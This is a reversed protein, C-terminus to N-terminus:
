FSKSLNFFFTRGLYDYGSYLPANGIRNGWGASIMPPEKDALNRAGVTASWDDGRYQVSLNSLFYNGTELLYLPRYDTDFYTEYYDYDNTSGVWELGYRVLWKQVSYSFDVDGAYQPQAVTGTTNRLPDTPFTRGAQTLYNSLRATTRFSGPGIERVFRATFDWGRVLSESINVYGSTVSMTNNVGRTVLSCQGADSNFDAPQSDYCLNMVNQGSLRAVGNDVKIDYYDAAFSLDGFWEPFEPQLVIGATVAVSTEAALGTEAGGQTISTVSSTQQFNTPLGESACNQYRASTPNRNGYENCPDTASSLFGSTAGLFQEFLAPARFSTGRSARISLWDVPTYLVGLKWTSDDGYSDYDTYRASANFTFEQAFPLDSLLPVEFEIYAESVSDKGRTPQSATFGFLNNNISNIDPTDDIEQRRHEVGMATSVTGAPLDFLPGNVGFNFTSETYITQGRTDQMIYDRYAQPLDGGVVAASLAPTPVCGGSPDRCVFGGRGDSVVDISRAIRDTLRNEVMYASDSRAHSYYTDYSWETGLNGRLGGTARFFDVEQWSKYPGWGIFARVSVNRGNTSGDAPAALWAPLTSLSGLLPSGVPYDLSHQLYGIQQSERRHGLGEFYLEADGLANLDFGAQLFGTTNKTPSILSERLMAPDFSDRGFYDVGEYGPLGTTVGPNPRWRNFINGSAGTGVSGLGPVGAINGTGITNITVGSDDITWCKPRGTRPDIYDDAGYSGDANRGLLPRPCDSAWGRQGLTLEARQNMELSGSAHWRDGVAGTMIGARTEDGGGDQTFNRQFEVTTDDVRTRTIVNVVGAVADSGYISSAGDKLVEIREIMMNPLVNLDASGVAGRSGAPSVRRGNLLILTRTAGLGRLSLTNVGPGGNVVFGGYANNIQSSGGTVSNSQLVGTTSSFGALTSEERSIVQVPSVSNFTDRAIRSGTVSVRDLTTAPASAAAQTQEATPAPEEEDDTPPTSQASALGMPLLLAAALALHLPNRRPRVPGLTRRSRM